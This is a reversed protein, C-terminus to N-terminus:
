KEENANITINHNYYYIAPIATKTHVNGIDNDYRRFQRAIREVVTREYSTFASTKDLNCCLTVVFM